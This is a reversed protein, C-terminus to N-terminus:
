GVGICVVGVCALVSGSVVSDFVLLVIDLAGADLFVALVSTRGLARSVVAMSESELVAFVSDHVGARVAVSPAGAVNQECELVRSSFRISSYLAATSM